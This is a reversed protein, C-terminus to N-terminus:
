SSDIIDASRSFHVHIVDVHPNINEWKLVPSVKKHM